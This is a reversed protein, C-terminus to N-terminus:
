LSNPWPQSQAETRGVEAEQTVPIVPPLWQHGAFNEVKFVLLRPPPRPPLFSAFM